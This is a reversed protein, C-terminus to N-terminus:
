RALGVGQGGPGSQHGVPEQHDGAGAWETVPRRPSSPEEGGEDPEVPGRGHDGAQRGLVERPRRGGQGARDVDAGGHDTTDGNGAGHQHDDVPSTSPDVAM